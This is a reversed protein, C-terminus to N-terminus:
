GHAAESEPELHQLQRLLRSAESARLRLRKGIADVKKGQRYFMLRAAEREAPSLDEVRRTLEAQRDAKHSAPEKWHDPRCCHSHPCTRVLRPIPPLGELARSYHHAPVAHFHGPKFVGHGNVDIKGIWLWCPAAREKDVHPWFRDAIELRLAGAPIRM